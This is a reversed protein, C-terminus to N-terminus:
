VEDAFERGSAVREAGVPRGVVNAKVRGGELVEVVGDDAIEAEAEVAQVDGGVMSQGEEGVGGLWARAGLLRQVEQSAPCGSRADGVWRPRGVRASGLCLGADRRVRTQMRAEAKWAFRHGAWM